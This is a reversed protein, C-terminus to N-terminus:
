LHRCIFGIYIYSDSKKPSHFYIRGPQNKNNCNDTHMKLHPECYAEFKEKETLPFTCKFKNCKKGEFSADDINHNLAFIPLFQVLDGQFEKYEDLFCDNLASLYNVIRQSHTYLIDKLYKKQNHEHIHLKDFYKKAELIFYIPNQPYKGLYFRRFKLWGEITSIIQHNDPLDNQHNLVLIGHCITEDELELYKLLEDQSLPCKKCIKFLSMFLNMFDRNMQEKKYSLLDEITINNSLIITNIFNEKNLFFDNDDYQKAKDIMEKFALIKTGVIQDNDQGNHCFSRDSIYFCAKM